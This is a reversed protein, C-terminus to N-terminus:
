PTYTLTFFPLGAQAFSWRLLVHGARSAHHLSTCCSKERAALVQRRVAYADGIRLKAVCCTGEASDM